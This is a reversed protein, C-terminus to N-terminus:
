LRRGRGWWPDKDLQGELERIAEAIEYTNANRLFSEVRQEPVIRAIPPLLVLRAHRLLPEPERMGQVRLTNAFIRLETLFDWGSGTLHLARAVYIVEERMKPNVVGQPRDHAESGQIFVTVCLDGPPGGNKGSMGKGRARFKTGDALNPPLHITLSKTVPNMPELPIKKTVGDRAELPTLLIPVNVDDGRLPRVEDASAHLRRLNALAEDANDQSGSQDPFWRAEHERQSAASFFPSDRFSRLIPKARRLENDRAKDHAAATALGVLQRAM